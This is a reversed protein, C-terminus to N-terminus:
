HRVHNWLNHIVQSTSRRPSHVFLIWYFRIHKDSFRETNKYKEVRWLKVMVSAIARRWRIENLTVRSGCYGNICEIWNFGSVLIKEVERKRDSKYLSTPKSVTQFHNIATRNDIPAYWYALCISYRCILRACLRAFVCFPFLSRWNSSCCCCKAPRQYWTFATCCINTYACFSCIFGHKCLDIM